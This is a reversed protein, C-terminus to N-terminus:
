QGQMSEIMEEMVQEPKRNDDSQYFLVKIQIM